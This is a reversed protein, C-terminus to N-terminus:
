CLFTPSLFHSKLNEIADIRQALWLAKFGHHLSPGGAEGVLALRQAHREVANLPTIGLADVRRREEGPDLRSDAKGAPRRHVVMGPKDVLVTEIGVDDRGIPNILPAAIVPEGIRVQRGPPGVGRTKGLRIAIETFAEGHRHLPLLRQVPLVIRGREASRRFHRDIRRGIAAIVAGHPVPNRQSGHIRQRGRHLFQRRRNDAVGPRCAPADDRRLIEGDDAGGREPAAAVRRLGLIVHAIQASWQFAAHSVQLFAGLGGAAAREAKLLGAIRLCAPVRSGRM